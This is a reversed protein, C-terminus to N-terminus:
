DQRNKDFFKLRQAQEQANKKLNTFNDVLIQTQGLSSLVYISLFSGIIKRM